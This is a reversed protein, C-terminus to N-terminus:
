IFKFGGQGKSGVSHQQVIHAKIVEAASHGHNVSATHSLSGAPNGQVGDGVNRRRADIKDRDARERM